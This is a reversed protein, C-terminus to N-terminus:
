GAPPSIKEYEKLVRELNKIKKELLDIHKKILGKEDKDQSIRYMDKLKEVKEKYIEIQSIIEIRVDSNKIEEGYSFFLFSLMILFSKLGKIFM